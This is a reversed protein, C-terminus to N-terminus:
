PMNSKIRFSVRYSLKPLQGYAISIAQIHGRLADEIRQLCVPCQSIDSKNSLDVTIETHCQGCEVSLYRLDSFPVCMEQQMVM